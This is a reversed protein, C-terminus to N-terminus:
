MEINNKKFMKRYVWRGVKWVVWVILTITVLWIILLPLKIVFTIVSDVYGALGSLLDKVARKAVILPRWRLGWVEFDADTSLSINITSMDVQRDMYKLQGEIREIQSRVRSLYNTVNLIDEVTEARDLIKLYQDEEARLNKLQAELDVYQETVDTANSRENEVETAVKKYSSMATEFSKVPVKVTVYGYKEGSVRKSVNSNIIEGQLKNTIDKIEAISEEVDKVYLSLSGNKKIKKDITVSSDNVEESAVDMMTRPVSAKQSVIGGLSDSLGVSEMMGEDHNLAFPTPGNQFFFQVIIVLGVFVGFVILIIKGIKKFQENM